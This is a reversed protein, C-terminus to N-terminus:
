DMFFLSMEETATATKETRAITKENVPLALACVNTQGAPYVHVGAGIVVPQGTPYTQVGVFVTTGGSGFPGIM